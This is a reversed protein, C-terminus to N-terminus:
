RNVRHGLKWEWAMVGWKPMWPSLVSRDNPRNPPATWTRGWMSQSVRPDPPMYFRGGPHVIQGHLAVSDQGVRKDLPMAPFTDTCHESWRQQLEPLAKRSAAMGDSHTLNYALSTETRVIREAKWWNLDAVQGIREVAEHTSEGMLVSMGLREEMASVTNAGYRAFSEAHVRLLTPRRAEILQTFHSAQEVPLVIESGRYVRELRTLDGVLAHLSETQALNSVPGMNVGLAHAIRMQGIRLQTQINRLSHATFTDGGKAHLIRHLKGALETQAKNYLAKLRNLGGNTIVKELRDRHATLIEAYLRKPPAM